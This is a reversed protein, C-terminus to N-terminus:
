DEWTDWEGKKEEPKEDWEDGEPKEDTPTDEDIDSNSLFAKSKRPDSADNFLRTTLEDVLEEIQVRKADIKGKAAFAENALLITVLGLAMEQSHQWVISDQRSGGGGGTGGGTDQAQMGKPSGSDELIQVKKVNGRNEAKQEFEIGVVDGIGCKPDYKTNFYFGDKTDLRIFYSFKGKGIGTVKGKCRSM